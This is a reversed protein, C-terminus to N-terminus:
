NGETKDFTRLFRTNGFEDLTPAPSNHGSLLPCKGDFSNVGDKDSDLKSVICLTCAERDPWPHVAVFLDGDIPLSPPPPMLVFIMFCNRSFTEGDLIPQSTADACDATGYRSRQDVIMEPPQVARQRDAGAEARRWIMLQYRRNRKGLHFMTALLEGSNSTEFGIGAFFCASM